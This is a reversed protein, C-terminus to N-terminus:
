RIVDLYYVMKKEPYGHHLLAQWAFPDCILLRGFATEGILALSGAYIQEELARQGAIGAPKEDQQGASANQAATEEGATIQALTHYEACLPPTWIGVVNRRKDACLEPLFEPASLLPEEETNVLLNNLAGDKRVYRTLYSGGYIYANEADFCEALDLISIFEIDTELGLYSLLVTFMYQSQGTLTIMRTIGQEKWDALLEEMVATGEDICGNALYDFGTFYPGFFAIEINKKKLFTGLKERSGAAYAFTAEDLLLGTRSEKNMPLAQAWAEIGEQDKPLFGNNKEITEKLADVEEKYFGKKYFLERGLMVTLIYGNPDEGFNQWREGQGSLIPAFVMDAGYQSAPLEGKHVARIIQATRSPYHRMQRTAIYEPTYTIGQDMHIVQHNVIDMVDPNELSLKRM